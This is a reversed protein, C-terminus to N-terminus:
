KQPEIEIISGAIHRRPDGGPSTIYYVVLVRNNDMVVAWPYGVDTGQGNDDRIIFEKSEKYDTGEANLIRARVGCPLSGYVYVLLIRKDPLRVATLPLGYFGMDECKFSKGGDTSRGIMANGPYDSRIFALIDGKPTEYTSVENCMPVGGPHVESMYQWTLGKDDSVILHTSTKELPFGDMRAVVWYIRGNEGEYLAGRNYAPYLKGLPNYYVTGPLSPPYIPGQWTKGNDISRMIYGGIGAFGNNFYLPQKLQSAAEQTMDSWGYSTCLLTGDSLKLLCPDQSGGFPHAVILEPDETWNEGDKSRVMVCHSNPDTHDYWGGLLVKDPARRFAVLYEGESKVVSPFTCYFRENKYIVFDKVKRMGPGNDEAMTPEPTSENAKVVNGSHTTLTFLMLLGCYIGTKKINSLILKM